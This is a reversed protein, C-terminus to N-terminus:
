KIIRAKITYYLDTRTVTNKNTYDNTFWFTTKNSSNLGPQVHYEISGTIKNDNLSDIYYYPLPRSQGYPFPYSGSYYIIFVNEGWCLNNDNKVINLSPTDWSM